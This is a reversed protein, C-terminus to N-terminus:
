YSGGRLHSRATHVAFPGAAPAAASTTLWAFLLDLARARDSGPQPEARRPQPEARRSPRPHRRLLPLALSAALWPLLVEQGAHPQARRQLAVLRTAVPEVKQGAQAAREGGELLAQLIVAALEVHREVITMWGAVTLAEGQAELDALVAVVGRDVVASWLGQKSGFHHRILGQPAGVAEAIAHTSAGEFGHSAFAETAAQLLRESAPIARRM